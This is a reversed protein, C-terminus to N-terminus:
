VNVRTVIIEVVLGAGPDGDFTVELGGVSPNGQSVINVPNAGMTKIAISRLSDEALLGNILMLETASGGASAESELVAEVFPTVFDDGDHAWGM